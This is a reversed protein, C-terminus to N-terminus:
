LHPARGGKWLALAIGALTVFSLLVSPGLTRSHFTLRVSRVGPPVSVALLVSDARVLQTTRGDTEASWGAAFRESVVLVGGDPAEVEFRREDALTADISVVRGTRTARAPLPAALLARTRLDFSPKALEDLHRETDLVDTTSVFWARPLASDNRYLNLDGSWLLTAGPVREPDAAFARYWVARPDGAGDITMPLGETVPAATAWVAIGEGPRAGRAEIDLRWRGGRRPQPPFELRLWATEPVEAAQVERAAVIEGTGPARLTLTVTGANVRGYTATLVDIARLGAVDLEFEQSVRRGDTLEGVPAYGAGVTASCQPPTVIVTANLLGLLRTDGHELGVFDWRAPRPDRTSIRDLLRQYHPDGFFDFGSVVDLGFMSWTHGHAFQAPPAVPAIRGGGALARAQELGPTTPYYRDRPLTPNFGRGFHLLDIAVLAALALTLVRATTAFPRGAAHGGGANRRTATWALFACLALTAVGILAFRVIQAREFAQLAMRRIDDLRLWVIVGSTAALIALVALVGALASWPSAVRGASTTGSTTGPAQRGRLADIGGAALVAAACALVVNWRYPNMQRFGPVIGLWSAPAVGYMACAGVLAVSALALTRADRAVCAAVLGAGALALTAIGLYTVFEPYNGAGQYWWNHALPTGWFDPLAYTAFNHWPQTSAAVSRAAAPSDRLTTLMPVLGVAALLFGGAVGAGLAALRPWVRTDSTATGGAAHADARPSAAAGGESPTGSPVSRVQTSCTYAPAEAGARRDQLAPRCPGPEVCSLVPTPSPRDGIASARCADVSCVVGYVGCTALVVITTPLYAGLLMCGIALAVLAVDRPARREVCRDIALLIWPLWLAVTPMPASLWTIFAGNLGFSLAGAAAATRSLRRHRLYLWMGVAALFLRLPAYVTVAVEPSFLYFPLSLPNFARGTDLGQFFAPTGSLATPDWEPFDGRRLREWHTTMLPQHYYAEDTRSLNSALPRSTDYSWPYTTFIADAPSFVEGHRWTRDFLVALCSAMVLAFLLLAGMQARLPRPQPSANAMM